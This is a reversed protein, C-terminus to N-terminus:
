SIFGKISLISFSLQKEKQSKSVFYQILKNNITYSWILKPNKTTLINKYRCFLGQISCVYMSFFIFIFIWMIGLSTKSSFYYLGLHLLETPTTICFWLLDLDKVLFFSDLDIFAWLFLWFLSLLLNHSDLVREICANPTGLLNYFIFKEIRSPLDNHTGM